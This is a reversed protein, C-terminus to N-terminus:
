TKFVEGFVGTLSLIQISNLYWISYGYKFVSRFYKFVLLIWVSKVACQADDYANDPM